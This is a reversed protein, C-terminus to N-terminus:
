WKNPTVFLREAVVFRRRNTSIGVFRDRDDKFQTSQSSHPDLWYDIGNLTFATYCVIVFGVLLFFLFLGLLYSWM